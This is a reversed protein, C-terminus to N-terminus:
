RTPTSADGEALAMAAAHRVAMDRDGALRELAMRAESASAHELAHVLAIRVGVDDDSVLELLPRVYGRRGLLEVLARRLPADADEVVAALLRDLEDGLLRELAIRARGRVLPQPDVLAHRLKPAVGSDESAGLADAAARRVHWSEDALAELLAPTLEPRPNRALAELAAVRVETDRDALLVRVSDADLVRAAAAAARRVSPHQDTVVTRLTAAARPDLGAVAAVATARVSPDADALREACVRVTEPESPLRLLAELAVRRVPPALDALADELAARAAPARLERLALAAKQRDFWSAAALGAVAVGVAGDDGLERLSAAVDAVIGVDLGLMRERLRAIEAPGALPVLRRLAQRAVDLSVDGVAELLPERASADAPLALLRRLRESPDPAKQHLARM